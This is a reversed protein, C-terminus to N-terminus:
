LKLYLWGHITAFFNTVQSNPSPALVESADWSAVSKAVPGKSVVEGSERSQPRRWVRVVREIPVQAVVVGVSSVNGKCAPHQGLGLAWPGSILVFPPHNRDEHGVSESAGGEGQNHDRGVDSRWGFKKRGHVRSM